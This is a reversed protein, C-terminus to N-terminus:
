LVQVALAVQTVVMLVAVQVAVLILLEMLDLCILVRSQVQVVVVMVAQQVRLVVAVVLMSFPLDVLLMQYVLAVQQELIIEMPLPHVVLEQVVVVAQVAQYLHAMVVAIERLHRLLLLTAQQGQVVQLTLLEVVVAVQDVQVAALKYDVAKVAVLLPTLLDQVAVAKVAEHEAQV